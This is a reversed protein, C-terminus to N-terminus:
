RVSEGWPSAVSQDLSSHGARLATLNLAVHQARYSPLAGPVSRELSDLTVLGTAAAFAGLMVISAFMPSGVGGAIETAPIEVVCFKDRDIRGEFVTANMLVVAGASLRRRVAEFHEHHMVLASWAQTVTPPSEVPGDAVVITAETNGGRMMGGYSGFMQVDRGEQLAARCLVQAALQIGQGGIGTMLIEREIM